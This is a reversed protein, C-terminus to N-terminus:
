LTVTPALDSKLKFTVVAVVFPAASTLTPTAKGISLAVATGSNPLIAVPLPIGAFADTVAAVDVDNVNFLATSM